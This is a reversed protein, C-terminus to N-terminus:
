RNSPPADIHGRCKQYLYGEVARREIVVLGDRYDPHDRIILEFRQVENRCLSRLPMPNGQAAADQAAKMEEATCLFTFPVDM